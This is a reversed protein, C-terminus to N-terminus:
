FGLIIQAVEVDGKIDEATTKGPTGNTNLRYTVGNKTAYVRSEIESAFVELEGLRQTLENFSLGVRVGEETVVKPSTITIQDITGEAGDMSYVYGLEDGEAGDIYFVEFAGEGTRLEGNRLGDKFDALSGGPTMGLFYDNSVLYPDDADVDYIATNGDNPDETEAAPTETGSTDTVSTPESSCSVLFLLLLLLFFLGSINKM